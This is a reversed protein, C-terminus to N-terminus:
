LWGEARARLVGPREAVLPAMWEVLAIRPDLPDEVEGPPLARRSRVYSSFRDADITLAALRPLAPLRLSDALAAWHRHDSPFVNRWITLAITTLASLSATPVCLRFAALLPSSAPANITIARLPANPPFLTDDKAAALAGINMPADYIIELEELTLANARLLPIYFETAGMVNLCKLNGLNIDTFARQVSLVDEASFDRLLLRDLVLRSEAAAEPVFDHGAFRIYLLELQKLSRAHRLLAHLEGAHRFRYKVM